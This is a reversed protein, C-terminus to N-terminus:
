HGFYLWLKKVSLNIQDEKLSKIKANNDTHVQIEQAVLESSKLDPYLNVLTIASESSADSMVDGEYSMYKEVLVAIDSEIKQNEETYMDIKAQIVSGQSVQYGFIFIGILCCFALVVAVSGAEDWDHAISLVTLVAFIVFLLILM